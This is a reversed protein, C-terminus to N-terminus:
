IEKPYSEDIPDLYRALKKIKQQTRNIKKIIELQQKLLKKFANSTKKTKKM